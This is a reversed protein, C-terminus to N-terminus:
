SWTKGSDNSFYLGGGGSYINGGAAWGLKSTMFRIERIPWATELTRGSWTEGGDATRHVWGEVTPSITGGGVWGFQDDHFFTPAGRRAVTTAGAFSGGGIPTTSGPSSSM